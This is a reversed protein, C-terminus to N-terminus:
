RDGQLRFTRPEIGPWRGYPSCCLTSLLHPAGSRICIFLPNFERTLHSSIGTINENYWDNLLM